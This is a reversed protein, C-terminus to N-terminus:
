DVWKGGNLKDGVYRLKLDTMSNEVYAKCNAPMKDDIVTITITQPINDCKNPIISMQGFSTQCSNKTYDPNAVVVEKKLKANLTKADCQGAGGVIASILEPMGPDSCAPCLKLFNLRDKIFDKGTINFYRELSPACEAPNVSSSLCLIASCALGEDGKLTNDAASAIGAYAMFFLGCLIRGVKKFLNQYTQHM